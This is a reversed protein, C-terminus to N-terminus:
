EHWSNPMLVFGALTSVQSCLAHCLVIVSAPCPHSSSVQHSADWGLTALPCDPIIELTWSSFKQLHFSLKLNVPYNDDLITGSHRKRVYKELSTVIHDCTLNVPVPDQGDHHPGARAVRPAMDQTAAGWEVGGQDQIDDDNNDCDTQIGGPRTQSLWCVTM